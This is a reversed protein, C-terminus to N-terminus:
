RRRRRRTKTTTRQPPGFLTKSLRRREKFSVKLVKRSTSGGAAKVGSRAVRLVRGKKSPRTTLATFTKKSVLRKQQMKLRGREAEVAFSRLMKKRHSTRGIGLVM